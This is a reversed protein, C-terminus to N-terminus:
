SDRSAQNGREAKREMAIKRVRNVDPDYPTEVIAICTAVGLAFGRDLEPHESEGDILDDMCRDLQGWM